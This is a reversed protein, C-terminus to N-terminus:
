FHALPAVMSRDGGSAGGAAGPQQASHTADFCVPAFERMVVLGRMDVVLDNHGFSTGRESVLVDGAGWSQAKEVAYRMDGPAIFPGRKLNLPRGTAACAAVLDSQRVLFAPVQLCDAVAAVREAQKPEHVDTLIPLRTAEKVAALM